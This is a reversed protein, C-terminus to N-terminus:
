SNCAMKEVDESGRISQVRSLLPHILWVLFAGDHWYGHYLSPQSVKWVTFMQIIVTDWGQVSGTQFHPSLSLLFCSKRIRNATGIVSFTSIWEGLAVEVGV